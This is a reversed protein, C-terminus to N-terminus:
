KRMRDAYLRYFARFGEAIDFPEIRNLEARFREAPIGFDHWGPAGPPYGTVASLFGHRDALGMVSPAAALALFGTEPPIAMDPHADLMLRLLTTGSRPAGVVIPMPPFQQKNI